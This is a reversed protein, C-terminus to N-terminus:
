CSRAGTFHLSDFVRKVVRLRQVPEGDMPPSVDKWIAHVLFTVQQLPLSESAPGLWHQVNLTASLAPGETEM